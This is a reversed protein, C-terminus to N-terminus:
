ARAASGGIRRLLDFLQAREAQELPALIRENVVALIGDLETLRTRGRDTITVVNRRKDAPDPARSVYGDQELRALVAVLDSTYIRTHSSLKAQSLPGFEDLAALSIFHDKHAGVAGLADGAVRHTQAATLGLLRSLQGRLRQPTAEGDDFRLDDDTPM